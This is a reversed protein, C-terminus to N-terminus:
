ALSVLRQSMALSMQMQMQLLLLPAPGFNWALSAAQRSLALFKLLLLLLSAMM